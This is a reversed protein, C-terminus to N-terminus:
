SSGAPSLGAPPAHAPAVIEHVPRPRGLHYGQGRDVGHSQLLRVTEHNPVFEAVTQKGLGRVMEAVAKIVLRDPANETAHRVFEGDIKVVDFPLHKLYYFSGFGAGFDDLAFQCGIEKLADAFQRARPIDSVAATETIELTLQSAPVAGRSLERNITDLLQSDGTSLGSINVALAIDRGGARLEAMAGIANTIIWRDLERVIGFREAIYLFTSPPILDGHEDLMRVLIEHEVNEGTALDVIPQAHLVFRDEALAREIRELWTMQIKIRPIVYGDRSYLSYRNRGAEKAEYMALDANVLMEDASLNGEGFMAVGISATVRGPHSDAIAATRRRVADVLAQAVTEAEPQDQTPLLIAFEDGGLRAIVDSERLRDCLVRACSIILEDGAGHGLTDNVMKFGDLDLVLLAGSAGYRRCTALHGELAAEFARRNFLGTLPDHDALHKLREEYSRRETIDQVQVLAHISQGDADRITTARLSVWVTHGAAHAIRHEITVTESGTQLRAFVRRAPELDDPVVIAFPAMAVLEEASFGTVECLADNVREFRGDLDVIAMGIPAREFAIKFRELAEDRAREAARVPTMDHWHVLAGEVAGDAARYPAFHIALTRDDWDSELVATSVHGAFAAEITPSMLELTAPSVFEALPRGIMSELDLHAFLPGECLTLRHERDYVTVASGALNEMITQLQQRTQEEQAQALHIKTEDFIVGDWVVTGDPERFPQAIGRLYKVEGDRMMHRGRWEWRTLERASTGISDEFGTRDDPHLGELMADVAVMLEEPAQGYIEEAGASVFPLSSSGDPALALRFVMGPVNSAISDYRRESAELAERAAKEATIDTIQFVFHSPSGGEGQVLSAALHVWLLSGSRHLCRKHTRFYDIKGDVLRRMGTMSQEVDDPHTLDQFSLQLLERESYGLLECLAPNVLAWRGDLAVRAMGIAANEFTSRFQEESARLARETMHLASVDQVTGVYCRNRGAARRGLAHLVREVADGDIIRYDFEFPSGADFLRRYGEAVRPRDEPHIYGLLEEGVAPGDAADRGFIRFMQHSWTAEHIDADWTWSGIAAIRQAESLDAAAARQRETARDARALASELAAQRDDLQALMANFAGGLARVEPTGSEPMTAAREGAALGVCVAVARQLPAVVARALYVVLAVLAVVLGLVTAIGTAVFVREANTGDHVARREIRTEEADFNAFRGRLADMLHKGTAFSRALQVPSLQSPSASLLPMAYRSLYSNLAGDLAVRRQEQVPQDRTLIRLADLEGTLAARAANWPALFMRDDTALYGRLGTELDIAHREILESSALVKEAHATQDIADHRRGATWAMAAIAMVVLAAVMAVPLGIHRRLL